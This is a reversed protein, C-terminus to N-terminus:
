ILSLSKPPNGRAAIESQMQRYESVSFRLGLFEMTALDQMTWHNSMLATRVRSDLRNQASGSGKMINQPALLMSSNVSDSSQSREDVSREKHRTECVPAKGRRLRQGALEARTEDYEHCFAHGLEHTVAFDLFQDFPIHWKSFLEVQREPKPVILVEELFTQRMELHSFAPSNPDLHLQQLFQKWDESRILIWTWQGLKEVRYRRLASRLKALQKECESITYPSACV